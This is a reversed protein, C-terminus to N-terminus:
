YDRILIDRHIRERAKYVGGTLGHFDPLGSTLTRVSLLSSGFTPEIIPTLDYCPLRIPLHPQIVEKRLLVHPIESLSKGSNKSSLVFFDRCLRSDPAYSRNNPKRHREFSFASGGASLPVPTYSLQSLVQGALLPDPTRIGEGGGSLTQLSHRAGLSASAPLLGRASRPALYPRSPRLLRYSPLLRLFCYVAHEHPRVDDRAFRQVRGFCASVYFNTCPMSALSFTMEQIFTMRTPFIPGYSLQSSRAGSLRLTPPELGSPGVLLCSPCLSASVRSAFNSSRHLTEMPLCPSDQHTSM